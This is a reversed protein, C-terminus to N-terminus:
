REKQQSRVNALAELRAVNLELEDALQGPMASKLVDAVARYYWLTGDRGGKFRDWITEGLSEYDKLISRVNHLKDAASVLRASPSANPLHALYKEKRDRWPPKPTLETDTCEDVISRVARGFRKEIQDGTSAGGQDEVADHLLAAIAEDESGGYDLVISAVALLHSAYPVNSTKRLQQAHLRHAYCLADEFRESLYM